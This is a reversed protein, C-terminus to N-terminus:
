YEEKQDKSEGDRAEYIYKEIPKDIEARIKVLQANDSKGQIYQRGSNDQIVYDCIVGRFENEKDISVVDKLYCYNVVKFGRYVCVKGDEITCIEMQYFKIHIYIFVDLAFIAAFIAFHLWDGKIANFVSLFANILGLLSMIVTFTHRETGNLIKRNKKM